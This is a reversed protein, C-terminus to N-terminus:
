SPISRRRREALVCQLCFKPTTHLRSVKPDPGRTGDIYQMSQFDSAEGIEDDSVDLCNFNEKQYNYLKSKTASEHKIEGNRHIPFPSPAPCYQVEVSKKTSLQKTPTANMSSIEYANTDSRSGDVGIILGTRQLAGVTATSRKAANSEVSLHQNKPLSTANISEANTGLGRRNFVRMPVNARTAENKNDPSKTRPKAKPKGTKLRERYVSLTQGATTRSESIANERLSAQHPENKKVTLLSCTPLTRKQLKATRTAQARAAAAQCVTQSIRRQVKEAAAQMKLECNNLRQALTPRSELLDQVKAFPRLRNKGTVNVNSTKGFQKQYQPQSIQNTLANPQSASVVTKEPPKQPLETVNSRVCSPETALSPIARCHQPLTAPKSPKEQSFGNPMHTQGTGYYIPELNAQNCKRSFDVEWQEQECRPSVNASGNGYYDEQTLGLAKDCASYTYPFPSLNIKEGYAVQHTESRGREDNFQWEANMQDNNKSSSKDFTGYDESKANTVDRVM